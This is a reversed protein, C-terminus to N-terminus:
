SKIIALKCLSQGKKFSVRLLYFGPVQSSLDLKDTFQNSQYVTKGKLDTVSLQLIEEKPLGLYDLQFHGDLSPNPKVIILSSSEPDDLGTGYYVLNLTITSDCGYVNNIIQTYTGSQSYTQNNLVYPGLSSVNITSDSPLNVNVMVTDRNTCNNSNTTTVIYNSTTVPAFPVGNVVGNNWTVNSTPTASLTVSDGLCIQQNAGANIVPLANVTLFVPSSVASCGFGNSAQVTYNGQQSAIFTPSTANTINSGNLQWQVLSAGSGSFTFLYPQGSCITPPGNTVINSTPTPNVTITTSASGTCGPGSTPTTTVVLVYQFTGAPPTATPNAINTASLGTQPVWAYTAPTVSSVGNLNVTNGACITQNPAVTVVPNPNVTIIVSNSYVAQSALCLSSNVKLRYHTTDTLVGISLSPSNAGTIATWNNYLPSNTAREWSLQNGVVFQAPVGIPLPSNNACIVQNSTAVGVSPQVVTVKHPLSSDAPCTNNKVRARYYRTSTIAGGLQTNMLSGLLTTSNIIPSAATWNLSDASWLWNIDSGVTTGSVLGINVPIGNICITQGTSSIIGADSGPVVFITHISSYSVSTCPPNKYKARIFITDTIAGIGAVLVSGPLTPGTWSLSDNWISGNLSWQWQVVGTYGATVSINNPTTGACITQNSSITSTGTAPNSVVTIQATVNTTDSTCGANTVIARYYYTTTQAGLTLTTSTGITTTPWTVGDVSREWKYTTGIAGSLSLAVPTSGTCITQTAPQIIGAFSPANVNITVVNSYAPACVGSTFSARYFITDTLAGFASFSTGTAGSVNVWPGTATPASQWQISGLYTGSLSLASPSGGLCINQPASPVVTATDSLPDVLVSIINSTDAICPGNTVIAVYYRNSMFTGGGSAATMQNALLTDNATAPIATFAGTTTTRYRWSIASEGGNFNSLVLGTPSTAYCITQTSSGPSGMVSASGAESVSFVNFVVTNSVVAPCAGSNVQARIYLTDFLLGVQSPSLTASNAGINTWPGNPNPSSQWQIFTATYGSLVVNSPPLTGFCVNPNSPSLIAVGGVSPQNVIVVVADSATCGNADTGIVTYAASANPTFPVNNVV